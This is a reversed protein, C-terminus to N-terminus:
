RGNNQEVFLRATHILSDIQENTLQPLIEVFEQILPNYQPVERVEEEDDWGLIFGPTTQLANAIQVIKSQRLQNANAEIKAITTKSTYGCLKALELQTLGLEIRRRKIREGIEM